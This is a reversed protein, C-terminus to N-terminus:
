VRERCSARGIQRDAVGPDVLVRCCAVGREFALVELVLAAPGGVSGVVTPGVPGSLGPFKYVHHIPIAKQMEAKLKDFLPRFSTLDPMAPAISALRRTHALRNDYKGAYSGPFHMTIRSSSFCQQRAVRWKDRM